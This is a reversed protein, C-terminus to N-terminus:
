DQADVKALPPLWEIQGANQNELNEQQSPLKRKNFKSLSPYGPSFM